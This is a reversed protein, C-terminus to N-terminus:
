INLRAWDATSSVIDKMTAGVRGATKSATDLFREYTEETEDTVKKLETLASDLEKVIQIGKKVEGIVKYIMTSGTFYYSFEKIKKGITEFVGMTRTTTGRVAMLAGDAQRVSATYQTFENKGTKLTYTLTNTTADFSKIQARGKTAAQVADTLEQKYAEASAGVGLISTAGLSEANPGSLREYNAILEQLEKTYNDVETRQRIMEARQEDSVVGDEPFSAIIARLSEIQGRYENLRDIHVQSLGDIDAALGFTEEAKTAVTESKKVGALRQSRAIEDKFIAAQERQSQKAADKAQKTNNKYRQRYYAEDQVDMALGQEQLAILDKRLQIEQELANKVGANTTNDAEARLKGIERELSEIKKRRTIEDQDIKKALAEYQKLQESRRGADISEAFGQEIEPTTSDLSQRLKQIEDEKAKAAIEAAERTADGGVIGEAKERLAGYEQYMTNLQRIIKEQEKLAVNEAKTQESDFGKGVANKFKMDTAYDVSSLTGRLSKINARIGSVDEGKARARGLQEYLTVLQKIVEAETQSANTREQQQQIDHTTNDYARQRAQEFRDDNVNVDVSKTDIRDQIIQANDLYQAKRTPDTEMDAKAQAQGLREYDKVLTKLIASANKFQKFHENWTALEAKDTVQSLEDFLIDIGNAVDGHLQNAEQLTTKYKLLSTLATNVQDSVNQGGSATNDEYPVISTNEAKSDTRYRTGQVLKGNIADLVGKIASLTNETALGTDSTQINIHSLADILPTFDQQQAETPKVNINIDGSGIGVNGAKINNLAVRIATVKKEVENLSHIESQTVKKVTKQEALFAQTKKDVAATVKGVAEEIYGLQLEEASLERQQNGTPAGANSTNAQGELNISEKLADNKRNIAETKANEEAVEAGSNDSQEITNQKQLSENLGDVAQKAANAATATREFVVDEIEVGKYEGDYGDAINYLSRLGQDDPLIEVKKGNALKLTIKDYTEGFEMLSTDAEEIKEGLEYFREEEKSTLGSDMEKQNLEEYRNRDKNTISNGYQEAIDRLLELKEELEGNERQIVELEDDDIQSNQNEIANLKEQAQVEANIANANDQHVQAEAKVGGTNEPFTKAFVDPIVYSKMIGPFSQMIKDLEARLAMQYAEGDVDSEDNVRQRAAAYLNGIEKITEESFSSFDFVLLEKNALIAEKQIYKFGKAWTEFDSVSPVATNYNHKHIRTDYDKSAIRWDEMTTVTQHEEGEALSAFEGTRSNLFAGAEKGKIGSLSDVLKLLQGNTLQDIQQRFAQLTGTLEHFEKENLNLADKLIELQQYIAQVQSNDQVPTGQTQSPNSQTQQLTPIKLTGFLYKFLDNDFIDGKHYKNFKNTIDSMRVNDNLSFSTAFQEIYKDTVARLVEDLKQGTESTNLAAQLDGVYNKIFADLKTQLEAKAAEDVVDTTNQSNDAGGSSYNKPNSNDTSVRLGGKLVGLVQQLTSEKAWPKSTDKVVTNGNITNVVNQLSTVIHETQSSLQNYLTTFQSGAGEQWQQAGTVGLQKQQSKIVAEYAKIYKLMHQYQTEWSDGKMVSQNYKDALNTLHEMNSITKKHGGKYNLVGEIGKTKGKLREAAKGLEDVSKASSTAMTKVQTNIFKLQKLVNDFVEADINKFANNATQALNLISDKIKDIVAQNSDLDIIEDMKVGKSKLADIVPAMQKKFSKTDVTIDVDGFMERLSNQLNSKTQKTIEGEIIFKVLQEIPKNAM